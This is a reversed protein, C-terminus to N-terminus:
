LEFVNEARLMASVHTEIEPRQARLNASNASLRACVSASLPLYGSQWARSLVALYTSCEGATGEVPRSLHSKKTM